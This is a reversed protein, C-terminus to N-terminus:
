GQGDAGQSTSHHVGPA